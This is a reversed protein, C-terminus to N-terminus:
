AARRAKSAADHWRWFGQAGTCPVPEDFPEIATLPWAWKSDDIRDSDVHAPVTSGAAVPTGLRATALGAGLVVDDPKCIAAELIPLAIEHELGTSWREDPDMLRDVLLGLEFPHVARKGAHIVIREGVVFRPAPHGRFEFPKAGAVILSAWPQWITLAYMWRAPAATLRAEEQKTM